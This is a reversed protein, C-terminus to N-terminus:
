NQFVVRVKNAYDPGRKGGWRRAGERAEGRGKKESESHSFRRCGFRHSRCDVADIAGLALGISNGGGPLCIVFDAGVEYPAVFQFLRNGATDLVKDLGAVTM